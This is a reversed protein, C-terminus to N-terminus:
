SSPAKAEEGSMWRAIMDHKVATQAALRYYAILERLPEALRHFGSIFAVVVGIESEGQIVLWGGVTLVALPALNNMLNLAAKGAFKWLFFRMRNAYIRHTQRSYARDPGNAEAAEIDDDSEQEAVQESIDRMLAIRREVLVNLRRQVLPALVLQPALFVLSALAIVPDVVLMYGLIAVLLGIHQAPDSLGTGVFGGVAEIEANIISVATGQNEARGRQEDRVRSLHRRCYLIASESLWGQYMRLLFKLASTLMIVGLYVGALILLLRLDSEAVARDVMRRQLELPVAGLGAVALALVIALAQQWGSMRWLFPFLGAAPSDDGTRRIRNPRGRIM